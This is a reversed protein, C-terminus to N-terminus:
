GKQPKFYWTVTRDFCSDLTAEDIVEEQLLYYLEDQKVYETNGIVYASKEPGLINKIEEVPKLTTKVHRERKLGYYTSGNTGEIPTDLDLRYSGSEDPEAAQAPIEEMLEDRLEKLRETLFDSEQKLTLWQNFKRSLAGVPPQSPQESREEKNKYAM